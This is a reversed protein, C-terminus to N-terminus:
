RPNSMSLAAVISSRAALSAPVFALQITYNIGIMAAFAATAILAIICSVRNRDPMMTALTAIFWIAGAILVLGLWYPLAQIPRYNQAFTELDKWPPQPASALVM